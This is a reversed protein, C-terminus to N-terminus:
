CTKFLFLVEEPIDIGEARFGRKLDVAKLTGTGALDMAQLNIRLYRIALPGRVRLTRAIDEVIEEGSKIM